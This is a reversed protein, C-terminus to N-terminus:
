ADQMAAVADQIGRPSDIRLVPIGAQRCAHAMEATRDGPIICYHNSAAVRAFARTDVGLDVAVTPWERAWKRRNMIEDTVDVAQGAGLHM